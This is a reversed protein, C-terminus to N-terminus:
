LRKCITRCCLTARRVDDDNARYNSYLVAYLTHHLEAFVGDLEEAFTRYRDGHERPTQWTRRHRRAEALEAQLAHYLSVIAENPDTPRRTGAIPRATAAAPDENADDSEEDDADEAESRPPRLWRIILLAAIVLAILILASRLIRSRIGLVESESAEAAEPATGDNAMSEAPLFESSQSTSVWSRTHRDTGEQFELSFFDFEAHEVPNTEVEAFRPEGIGVLERRPGLSTDREPDTFVLETDEEIEENTEAALPEDPVIPTTEEVRRIWTTPDIPLWGLNSLWVEVWAHAQLNRVYTRTPKTPDRRGGAFGVVLRTSVDVSRLLLAVSTAFYSCDGTREDRLFTALPAVGSKWSARDDFEFEREYFARLALVNEQVSAERALGIERAFAPLDIGVEGASPIEVYARDPHAGYARGRPLEPGRARRPTVQLRYRSGRALTPNMPFIDGQENVDYSAGDYRPVLPGIARAYYPAVIPKFVPTVVVVDILIEHEADVPPLARELVGDEPWLMRKAPQVETWTSEIADFHSLTHGRWLFGEPNWSRPPSALENGDEDVVRAALVITPDYRPSALNGLSVEAGYGIRRGDRREASPTADHPTRARPGFIAARFDDSRESGPPPSPFWNEAVSGGLSASANQDLLPYLGVFIAVFAGGALLTTMGAHVRANRLFYRPRRSGGFIAWIQQRVASSLLTGLLFAPVLVVAWQREELLAFVVSAFLAFDALPYLSPLMLFFGCAWALLVMVATREDPRVSAAASSWCLEWGVAFLFAIGIVFPVSGLFSRLIHTSSFTALAMSATRPVLAWLLILPGVVARDQRELAGTAFLTASGFALLDAVLLLVDARRRTSVLDRFLRM